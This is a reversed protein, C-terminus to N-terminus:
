LTAYHQKLLEAIAYHRKHTAWFLPTRGYDKQNVNIDSRKLLLRVLDEYGMYSAASLPSDGSLRATNVNVDKRASLLRVAAERSGEQIARLLPTLGGSDISNIELDARQLLLKVVGTHRDQVAKALPTEGYENRSNLQVDRRALLIEVATELGNSAAESLPTVGFKDRSDAEAGKQLLFNVVREIRREAISPLPLKQAACHLPTRGCPNKTNIDLGQALCAAVVSLLSCGSAVHLVNSGRPLITNRINKFLRFRQRLLSYSKIWDQLVSDSSPHFIAVLDDQPINEKEVRQAHITWFMTSYRLFLFARETEYADRRDWDHTKIEEMSLYKICSRSLWYHGRGMVSKTSTSDMLRFWTELLYDNVSQHIFQAIRKGYQSRVEILGKSLDCVNRAMQMDTEVYEPTAQCQRISTCPSEPHVVMAFRLEAMKLPREAFCVWQMLRLTQPLDEEKISSLLDRYLAKLGIPSEAISRLICARSKGKMCMKLVNGTVLVVWQFIGSSRKTIADRIEEALKRDKIKSMISNKIYVEIDRTNQHEVSVELGYELAVLPYHRCSFCVGFSGTFLAFFEVLDIAVDEGCEDLADIYIRVKYVEALNPFYSSFFDRLEKEHWNWDKGFNGETECKKKYLSTLTESLDPIQQALQHLLSRFLGLPNKQILAGRGHFFFSAFISTENRNREAAEYTYKVLTSKGAGPNGKIWLLGHHERFWKLYTHHESLWTCTTTSPDAIDYRRINMEPFFLSQLCAEIFTVLIGFSESFNVPELRAQRGDILKVTSTRRVIKKPIGEGNSALEQMAIRVKRFEGDCEGKFKCIGHHNAGAISFVSERDGVNLRASSEPVIMKSIKTYPILTENSELITVVDLHNMFGFARSIDIVQESGRKLVSLNSTNFNAVTSAIRVITSALKAVDAGDHPTGMFMIGRTLTYISRYKQENRALDLAKKIVLGGMSHGVFVVQRKQEQESRRYTKLEFLLNEAHNLIHLISRSPYVSADYGYSMIRSNALFRPLLDRLWLKGTDADTWTTFAGGGLGHVAIIDVHVLCSDHSAEDLSTSSARTADYLVHLGRADSPASTESSTTMDKDARGSPDRASLM